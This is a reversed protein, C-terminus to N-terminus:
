HRGQKFWNRILWKQGSCTQLSLRLDFNADKVMEVELCRGTDRNIIPGNQTFDWLRQGPRDVDECKRLRPSRGKGDDVVCKTDPLFRTSGLPGLQLLGETTYRVLEGYTITNNYVRMEPYVNDRYWKFSRCNLRKRLAVRESVNGFDVGPNNMPINWAMYVHSKFDDMWVEAARLANRKAYYDIDNNYPKKTREIHAVRSCPLVEMSGGCQWVRMGLEINEGGYIEMGPDLLGIEGFYERDVVFSCGIMAPTRIPAAQDDQQLWAHPPLIYM